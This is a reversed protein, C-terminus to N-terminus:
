KSRSGYMEKVKIRDISGDEKKPLSDVFEVYGPKKYRAIRAAVFDILEQETLKSNPELVCVAKIGEGFKPDPVGIVSVEQVGPHELVVKEVEVPYVNEGGPKILEKEAKRGAFFLFGEEDLRGMDGTHHWGERFTHKTLEEEGWYGEFVLPGRIVIEGTQGVEVEHDLDDVIKLDVLPGAKGASGPRESNLGVCTLGMTETQGYVLWFQGTGLAEFRKVTEPLEVGIVKKLPSLTYEGSAQEDLLQTLIPPFDGILTVRERDIMKGAAKPDYKSIILNKGGAHMMALSAVLGAIHFLPLINMYTDHYTLSLASSTHVSAAVLNRHTVVAGRPKGRIAATHIIVAPDSDALAVEDGPPHNMLSDFSTFDRGSSGFMVLEKLSPFASTLDPVMKEYDPEFFFIVPKTDTLIHKMEDLSLRFNIPVMMAGIAAIAGTVPFFEPRNKTLVAIRDGQRIGKYALWGAGRNVQDYLKGFTIRQEESQIAIKNKFLRANRKFIDYVTFSRLDM